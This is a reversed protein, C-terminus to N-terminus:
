TVIKMNKRSNALNVLEKMEKHVSIWERVGGRIDEPTPYGEPNGALEIMRAIQEKNFLARQSECHSDCYSILQDDTMTGNDM